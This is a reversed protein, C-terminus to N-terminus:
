RSLFRGQEELSMKPGKKRGKMEVLGVNLIFVAFSTLLIFTVHCRIAVSTNPIKKM